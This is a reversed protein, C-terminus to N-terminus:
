KNRALQIRSWIKLPEIIKIMVQQSKGREHREQFIDVGLGAYDIMTTELGLGLPVSNKANIAYQFEETVKLPIKIEYVLKRGHMSVDISVDIGKTKTINSVQEENEMIDVKLNKMMERAIVQFDRTKVSDMKLAYEERMLPSYNSFRLGFTKNKEGLPDFWVTFYQEYFGMLQTKIKKDTTTFCLYLFENDNSVGLYSSQIRYMRSLWESDDGDIKISNDQWASDFKYTKCGFLFSVLIILLIKKKM